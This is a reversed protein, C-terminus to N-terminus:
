EYIEIWLPWPNIIIYSICICKLEKLVIILSPEPYIDFFKFILVCFAICITHTYLAWEHEIKVNRFLRWVIIWCEGLCQGIMMIFFILTSMKFFLLRAFFLCFLSFKMLLKWNIDCNLSFRVFIVDWNSRTHAFRTYCFCIPWIKM